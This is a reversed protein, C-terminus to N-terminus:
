VLEKCLRCFASYGMAIAQAQIPNNKNLFVLEHQGNKSKICEKEEKNELVHHTIKRLGKDKNKLVGNCYKEHMDKNSERKFERNCKSCVFM